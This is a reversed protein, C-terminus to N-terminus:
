FTKLVGPIDAMHNFYLNKNRRQLKPRKLLQSTKYGPHKKYKPHETTPIKRPKSMKLSQANKNPDNESSPLTVKFLLPM